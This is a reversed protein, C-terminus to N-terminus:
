RLDCNEIEIGRNWFEVPWTPSRGRKAPGFFGLVTVRVSSAVRRSLETHPYKEVEPFQALALGEVVKLCDLVFALYVVTSQVFVTQPLEKDFLSQLLTKLLKPSSSEQTEIDRSGLFNLPCTPYYSFLPLFARRLSDLHNSAVLDKVIAGKEIATLDAFDSVAAFFRGDTRPASKVGCRALSLAVETGKVQGLTEHLLAIWIVEPIITNVWSVNEPRGLTAVYPPVLRAGKRKHDALIPKPQQKGPKRPEKPTSM